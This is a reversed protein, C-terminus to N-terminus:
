KHLKFLSKKPKNTSKRHKNQEKYLALSAFYLELYEMSVGRENIYKKADNSKRM